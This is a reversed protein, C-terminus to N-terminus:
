VTTTRISMENKLTRHVPCRESIELLRRSQEESLSGELSLAVDIRDVRGQKSACDECDKAHIRSHALEVQSGRLPWGKRDAYMRMTIVKCAGLAALLFSYPNPGSDGGGAAVPEDAVLRHLGALIETEYGEAGGKVLVRRQELPVRDDAKEDLETGLYRSAWCDIASAVFQWDGDNKALLHDAGDVSIFSKPFSAQEFLRSANDVDVIEDQPSHLILLPRDLASLYEGM